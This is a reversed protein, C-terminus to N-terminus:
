KRLFLYLFYAEILVVCLGAIINFARIYADGLKGLGRYFAADRILSPLSYFLKGKRLTGIILLFVGGSFVTLHIIGLM